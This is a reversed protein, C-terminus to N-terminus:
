KVMPRNSKEEPERAIPDHEFGEIEIKLSEIAIANANAFDLLASYESVWSRHLFYRHVVHGKKNMVELILERKYDGLNMMTDRGFSRMTRAWQEFEPDHTVGRELTISDYTTRGPSKTDESPDNGDMHKMVETTRKIASVKSVGLVPKGDLSIRFKFNKYPDKRGINKVVMNKSGHFTNQEQNNFNDSDQLWTRLLYMPELNYYNFGM